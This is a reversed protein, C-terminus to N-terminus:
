AGRASKSGDVITATRVPNRFPKKLQQVIWPGTPTGLQFRCGRADDLELQLVPNVLALTMCMTCSSWAQQGTTDAPLGAIYRRRIEFGKAKRFQRSIDFGLKFLEGHIRPAGWTSNEKVMRRILARVAANLKPRGPEKPALSPALVVSLWGSAVVLRYKRMRSQLTTRKLGLRAAAGDLGGVGAVEALTAKSAMAGNRAHACSEGFRSSINLDAHAATSTTTHCSLCAGTAPPSPDFFGRPDIASALNELLPLQESGNDHCAGCDNRPRPYRLGNYNTGGITYERTNDVGLHIRHIMEKFNISEPPNAEDTGTPNPCLVCAVPRQPELRPFQSLLPLRQM